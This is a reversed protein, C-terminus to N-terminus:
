AGCRARSMRAGAAYTEFDEPNVKTTAKFTNKGQVLSEGVFEFVRATSNCLPDPGGGVPWVMRDIRDRRVTIHGGDLRWTGVAVVYGDGHSIQWTRDRQEILNCSLEVFEGSRKLLVITADATRIPLNAEPPPNQWQSDLHVFYRDVFSTATGPQGAASIAFLVISLAGSSCRRLPSRVASPSSRIRQLRTDPRKM